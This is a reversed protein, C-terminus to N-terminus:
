LDLSSMLASEAGSHGIASATENQFAATGFASFSQHLGSRVFREKSGTDAPPALTGAAPTVSLM